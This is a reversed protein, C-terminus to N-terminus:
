MRLKLGVTFRRGLVDFLTQNTQGPNTGFTSYSPDIPPARDLINNVEGYLELTSRSGMDISYGLRADLYTASAVHNNAVDWAGNLNYLASLKGQGIFRAQVFADLPGRSYTLISTLKWKPLAFIGTDGAFETKVGASSTTSNEGLWSAFVRGAVNEGGGFWDVGRTYGMEIDVGRIKAKAINQFTQNVIFITNNPGSRDIFKCEDANGQRYCASIIDQAAFAQIADQLSVDLMDVSLDAGALWGPRYVFGATITDAKEPQVSPNGGSVITINYTPTGPLGYDIVSAAGGTRDFREGLNAARVDRSYTARVRLDRFMEDDLGFKYSWITGSGGYDAWRAAGNFNLQQLLLTNSVLPVLTEVFAEKVDYDGQIFPVKSFQIEVSNNAAAGPVGRIGATANNAAVPFVFPSASPNGQSALVDQNFDEKRFHAGLAMSVPGAGWGKFIEGSTSLEAVHQKIDIQRVKDPGGVYSFPAATGTSTYPTTTVKVGPDFGTVWDIAATSANGRGFLNLPVCDPYQGSVLTVHCVTRGTAPDTVADVALFLRDIRTGGIQRAEVNTEGYQYYGDITWGNFRGGELKTKFGLTGSKTKTDNETYANNALDLSDGVRGFTFSAVNSAAMQQRLGAPLFANDAFITIPQGSGASFLGGANTSRVMEEGYIGQFYVNTNDTVDMDLYGFVNSRKSQPEVIPRDTNNDTGSGGGVVSQAGNLTSSLASVQFPSVSGDSNFISRTFSAPVTNGATPQWATIIGDYSANLSTLYPAPIFKPNGQSTGAGTATSQILGWGKYWDRGKYTFVPDEDFHEGSLIFHAREGIKHGFTLSLKNNQNDGRSTQGRQAEAKIGDYRTDLIFNVVGSVADSGYAASAGGTVTEVRKIVSEPFLNIDPGGYLTSDVVRRGDLLTLTRKTGLGRLNLAGGGPSTFFGNAGTNFNSTTSSGYFQPLQTLGSVLTTPAMASLEVSSLAAVPTPTTMGLNQIRSGTVLVEEVQEPEAAFVQTAAAVAVTATVVMLKKKM